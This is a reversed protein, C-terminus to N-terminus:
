NHKPLMKDILDCAIKILYFYGMSKVFDDYAENM